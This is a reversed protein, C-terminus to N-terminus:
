ASSSSRRRGSTSNTRQSSSRPARGAKSTAASRTPTSTGSTEGPLHESWDEDELGDLLTGDWLHLEPDRGALRYDENLEQLFKERRLREVADALLDTMPRQYRRSMEQLVRYSPSPIRILPRSSRVPM